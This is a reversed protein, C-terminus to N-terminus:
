MHAGDGAIAIERVPSTVIAQERSHLELCFGAYIGHLKVFGGGLSSGGVYARTFEPFFRGGRVMVEARVPDLVILEYVTNRTRVLLRELTSLSPVQVGRDWDFKCWEDLSQARATDAPSTGATSRPHAMISIAKL